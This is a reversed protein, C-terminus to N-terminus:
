IGKIFDKYNNEIVWDRYAVFIDKLDATPMIYDPYNGSYYYFTTVSPGIHFEDGPASAWVADFAEQNLAKTMESIMEDIDQPVTNYWFFEGLLLILPSEVVVEKNGNVSSLLFEVNYKSLVQTNM